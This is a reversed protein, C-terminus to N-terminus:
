PIPQSDTFLELQLSFSDTLLLIQLNPAVDQTCFCSWTLVMTSIKDDYQRTGLKELLIQLLMSFNFFLKHSLYFSEGSFFHFLFLFMGKCTCDAPNNKPTDAPFQRPSSMAPIRVPIRIHIASTLPLSKVWQVAM